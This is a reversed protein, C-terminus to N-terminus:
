HINHVCTVAYEHHRRTYRLYLVAIAISYGYVRQLSLAPSLGLRGVLDLRAPTFLLFWMGAALPATRCRGGYVAMYGPNPSRRVPHLKGSLRPVTRSLLGPPM